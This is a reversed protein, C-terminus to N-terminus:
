RGSQNGTIVLHQIGKTKLEEQLNTEHFSDPTWKQIVTDGKKPSISPHIGWTTRVM